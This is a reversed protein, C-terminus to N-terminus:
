IHILSLRVSSLLVRRLAHGITTGFGPELPDMIFKGYGSRITAEEFQLWKPKAIETWNKSFIKVEETMESTSTTKQIESQGTEQEVAESAEVTEPM